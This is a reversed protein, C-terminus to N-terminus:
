YKRGLKFGQGTWQELDQKKIKRNTIGNTIWCTGFQSNKEGSQMASMKKSIRTKTEASHTRGKFGSTGNPFKKKLGSRMADMIGLKTRWDKGYKETLTKDSKSRGKRGAESKDGIKNRNVYGWGGMGGDCLNYSQESLVVLEKEKERMEQENNGIFLYEKTFNEVGYKQIARTILKGSGM